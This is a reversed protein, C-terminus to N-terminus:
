GIQGSNNITFKTVGSASASLVAQDGTENIITNAKGTVKGSSTFLGIPATNSLSLTLPARLDNPLSLTVDGTAASATIQNATGIIQSVYNGTTDTGLTVTAWSPTTGSHLLQSSIGPALRTLVGSGNRYYVDGQADSGMTM